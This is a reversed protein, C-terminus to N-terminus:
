HKLTYIYVCMLNKLSIRCKQASIQRVIETLGPWSMHIRICILEAFRALGTLAQSM